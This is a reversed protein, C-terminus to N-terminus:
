DEAGNIVSRQIMGAEVGWHTAIAEYQGNDILYQLADRLAPGLSSGKVVPWGYPSADYLPGVEEIQGETKKVAYATVPSDASFADVQGLLVANVAQDQSDFKVIKIADEGARVCAASKAPLEEIDEVTTRQVGVRLGCADDPDIDRGAKQAWRIGASFYDVFDVQRQREVSDTFSSMGVDFSGSQLAPIIKAFDSEVYVPRVGLVQTVANMLDVDFGIIEGDRNKFENPQYPPNTGVRLRGSSRVGAPLLAAIEPQEDVTLTLPRTDFASEDVVCGTLLSGGLAAAAALMGARMRFTAKRM